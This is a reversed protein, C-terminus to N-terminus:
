RPGTNTASNAPAGGAAALYDSASKKGLAILQAIDEATVETKNERIMQALQAVIPLISPGYQLVATLILAPTM